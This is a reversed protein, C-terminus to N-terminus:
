AWAANSLLAFDFDASGLRGMRQVEMCLGVENEVGDGNRIRLITRNRECELDFIHEDDDQMPTNEM